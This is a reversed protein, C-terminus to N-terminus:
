KLHFYINFNKDNIELAKDKASWNLFTFIITSEAAYLDSIANAEPM